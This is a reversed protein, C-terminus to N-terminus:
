TRAAVGALVVAVAATLKKAYRPKGIRGKNKTPVIKQFRFLRLAVFFREHNSRKKPNAL